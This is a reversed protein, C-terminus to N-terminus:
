DDEDNPCGDDALLKIGLDPKIANLFSLIEVECEGGGDLHDAVEKASVAAVYGIFQGSEPEIVRVANADYPNGHERELALSQGIPLTRVLATIDKGRFTVGMLPANLEIM